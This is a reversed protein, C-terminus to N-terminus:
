RSVGLGQGERDAAEALGWGLGLLSMVAMVLLLAIAAPSMDHRLWDNLGARLVTAQGLALWCATTGLCVGGMRMWPVRRRRPLARMVRDSFDADAVPGGLADRLLKDLAHEDIHNM